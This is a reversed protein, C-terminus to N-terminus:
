KASLVDVADLGFYFNSSVENKGVAKIRLSHKGATLEHDGLELSGAPCVRGSYLDFDPQQVKGDLAVRIVGFDPAATALLRLRYRGASRVDFGLAVSGGEEARCFLQEARSWMGAGWPNMKQPWSECKDRALIAMSEAEFREAPVESGPAGLKLWLVDNAYARAYAYSMVGYGNRGWTPGFSNRFFLVGSSSQGADDEYGTFVISHGDRVQGPTPVNLLSAGKLAKPWRLGCAVPHGNALARKISTLEAESLSRRIDWRRIWEAKWRGSLEKADAIATESPRRSADVTLEYPMLELKCIGLTNLGHVAEYFMAQDGTLGTAENAAWILYEESLRKGKPPDTRACEFDAVATIAFLSCVDRSGQARPAIGLEAYEPGLDVRSPLSEEQSAALCAEALLGVLGIIRYHM